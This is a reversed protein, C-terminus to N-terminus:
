RDIVRDLILKYPDSPLSSNGLFPRDNIVIMFLLIGLFCAMMSILIAHLKLDEIKYLYAVGISVAAGIWIVAWMESSLSSDIAVIRMRRADILNNYARLTENHLASVSPKTPEFSYLVSQFDDLIDRGVLVVQGQKQAPWDKDIISVTFERLKGKLQSRTPEPYEIIDRYLVGIATAEKSVLQSSDAHTNWVGVALLGVTIGYFVGIAQVTGSIAESVGEHYRFRPILLRRCLLLGTISVAEMVVVIVLGLKLSSLHYAWIPM